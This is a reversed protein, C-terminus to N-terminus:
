GAHFAALAKAERELERRVRPALPEFPNLRVVGDEYRWAGAVAGDVLFTPISHPTRVHFVLNRHREPLIQTRRAHVLLAAEWTHLFRVPAPTDPGPLPAVALDFLEAGKVDRFRRLALIALAPKIQTAPVGAWGAIDNVTAPGFAALYRRALHVLGAEAGPDPAGLWSDALGYLDARRQEWTGSPPVRVLDLWFGVGQWAVAPAGSAALLAKLEATRAPGQELRRRLAGAALAMDFGVLNRAAARLWWQRRGDRLGAAFLAYDEASVTHITSRMLTAQVASRQELARTLDERRFDHLRSWLGVYAAPAYQTQLGAVAELARPVPLPSRELLLQRALLARNLERTSLVRETMFWGYMAMRHRTSPLQAVVFDQAEAQSGLREVTRSTERRGLQDPM